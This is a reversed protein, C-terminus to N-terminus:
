HRWKDNKNVHRWREDDHIIMIISACSFSALAMMCFVTVIVLLQGSTFELVNAIAMVILTLVALTVSFTIACVCYFGKQHKM